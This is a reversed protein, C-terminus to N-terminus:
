MERCGNICRFPPSASHCNLTRGLFVVCQGRGPSSGLGNSTTYNNFIRDNPTSFWSASGPALNVHWRNNLSRSSDVSRMDWSWEEANFNENLVDRSWWKNDAACSLIPIPATNATNFAISLSESAPIDAYKKDGYMTKSISSTWYNCYHVEIWCLVTNTKM